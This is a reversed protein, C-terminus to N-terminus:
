DDNAITAVALPDRIGAGTPASLTLTFTEDAEATTDPLVTIFVVGRRVGPPISVTGTRAVYDTGAEASRDATAYAVTM